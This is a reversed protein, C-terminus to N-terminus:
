NGTALIPFFPMSFPKQHRADSMGEYNRVNSSASFVYQNLAQAGRDSLGLNLDQSWQQTNATHVQVLSEDEWLKSEEDTIHPYYIYGHM